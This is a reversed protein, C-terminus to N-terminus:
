AAEKGSSANLRTVLAGFAAEVKENLKETWRVMALNAWLLLGILGCVEFASTKAVGVALRSRPWSPAGHPFAHPDEEGPHTM